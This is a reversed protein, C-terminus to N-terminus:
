SLFVLIEFDAVYVATSNKFSSIEWAKSQIDIVHERNTDRLAVCARASFSARESVELRM